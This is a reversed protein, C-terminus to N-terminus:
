NNTRSRTVFYAVGLVGLALAGLTLPNQYWKNVGVTAEGTVMPFQFERTDMPQSGGFVDKVGGIVQQLPSQYTGTRIGEAKAAIKDARATKIGVKAATRQDKRAKINQFTNRVGDFIGSMQQLHPQSSVIEFLEQDTLDDFQDERIWVLNGYQDRVQLMYDLLKPRAVSAPADALQLYM